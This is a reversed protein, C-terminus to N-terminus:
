KIGKGISGYRRNRNQYERLALTYQEEDFDPWYIQMSIFEAYAGQYLLFNSMRMEGSTRIIVDPDPQNATDLYGSITQTSIDDINLNGNLVTKCIKKVAILIEDRSGYNLAINVTLGTNNETKELAYNIAKICKSPFKSILGLFRIKVNNLNLEDIEGYLFDVLLTMLLSVERKPRNWNETSFAYLTLVKIGLNNSMKIVSRLREVGAKHGASRLLGKSKAWRGNGDMIIAVHKPLRDMDLKNDSGNDHSLSSM